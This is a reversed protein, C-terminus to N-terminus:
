AIEKLLKIEEEQKKILEEQKKILEERLELGEFIKIDENAMEYVMYQFTEKTDSKTQEKYKEFPIQVVSKYKKLMKSFNEENM